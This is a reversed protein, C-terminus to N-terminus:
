DQAHESISQRVIFSVSGKCINDTAGINAQLKMDINHFIKATKNDTVCLCLKKGFGDTFSIIM